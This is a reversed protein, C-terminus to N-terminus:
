ETDGDPSNESAPLQSEIERIWTALDHFFRQRAGFFLFHDEDPYVFYTVAAGGQKLTAAAQDARAASIRRDHQGHVLLIPRDKWGRVFRPSEILGSEIVGSIFVVGQFHDPFKRAVRTAGLGGNSLAVLYVRHDDVSLQEIAYQRVDEIAQIGDSQSWDGMGFTPCVVICRFQDAFMKWCYLYSRFNGVSGHLFIILPLKEGSAHQPVCYYFHGNGTSGGLADAWVYHMVSGLNPYEKREDMDRYLPLTLERVREVQDTGIAIGTSGFLYIGLNVQDREPLLNFLSYRPYGAPNPWHSGIESGELGRGTPALWVLVVFLVVATLSLLAAPVYRASRKVPWRAGIVWALPCLLVSLACIAFILGRATEACLLLVVAVTGGLPLLMVAYCSFLLLRVFRWIKKRPAATGTQSPTTADFM